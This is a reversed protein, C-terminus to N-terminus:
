LTRKYMICIDAMKVGAPFMCKNILESPSHSLNDGALKIFKDQIGDFGPSKGVNLSM